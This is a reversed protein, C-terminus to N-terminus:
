SLFSAADAKSLELNEISKSEWNNPLFGLYAELALSIQVYSLSDGALDAFSKTGPLGREGLLDEYIHKVSQWSGTGVSGRYVPLRIFIYDRLWQSLSIHWRSWFDTFSRAFFPRRFNPKISFGLIRSIGIVV